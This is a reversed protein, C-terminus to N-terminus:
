ELGYGWPGDPYDATASMKRLRDRRMNMSYVTSGEYLESSM